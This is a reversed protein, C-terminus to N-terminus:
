RNERIAQKATVSKTQNKKPLQQTPSSSKYKRREEDKLNLLEVIDIKDFPLNYKAYPDGCHSCHSSGELLPEGCSPTQCKTVLGTGCASCYRLDDIPIVYFKPRTLLTAEKIFSNGEPCDPNPCCAVIESQIQSASPAADSIGLMKLLLQLTEESVANISGQEVLSIAAQSIQLREGLQSQKLRLEVRRTRIAHGLKKNPYLV